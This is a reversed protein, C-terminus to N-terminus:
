CQDPKLYGDCNQLRPVQTVDFKVTQPSQYGSSQTCRVTIKCDRFGSEASPEVGGGIGQCTKSASKNQGWAENCNPFEPTATASMSFSILSSSIAIGLVSILTKM